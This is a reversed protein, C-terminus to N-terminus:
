TIWRDGSPPNVFRFGRRSRSSGRSAIRFGSGWKKLPPRRVVRYRELNLSIKAFKFM